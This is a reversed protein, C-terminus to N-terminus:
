RRFILIIIATAVGALILSLLEPPLTDFFIKLYESIVPSKEPLYDVYDDVGSLEPPDGGSEGAGSQNVNVNIDIPPVDVGIEIPSVDVGVNVDVNGGVNVSGNVGVNGGVAVNGGASGSGNNDDGGNNNIIYNNTIYENITSSDGTEPNTISYDYITDGSVTIYYTDPLKETDINYTFEIPENSIFFGVDINTLDPYKEDFSSPKYGYITSSVSSNIYVGSATMDGNKYYKGFSSSGGFVFNSGFQWGNNNLFNNYSTYIAYCSNSTNVFPYICIYSTSKLYSSTWVREDIGLNPEAKNEVDSHYETDGSDNLKLYDHYVYPTYYYDTGDFYFPTYYCGDRWGQEFFCNPYVGSSYLMIKPSYDSTRYSIYQMCNKPSYHKNATNIYDKYTKSDIVVDGQETGVRHRGGHSSSTTNEVELEGGSNLLYFVGSLPSLAFAGDSALKLWSIPIDTVNKFYDGVSTSKLIDLYAQGLAKADESVDDWSAAIYDSYTPAEAARAAGSCVSLSFGLTFVLCLFYVTIKEAYKNIFKRM